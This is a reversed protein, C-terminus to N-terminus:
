TKTRERFAEIAAEEVEVPVEAAPVGKSLAVTADLQRRYRRCYACIGLHFRYSAGV